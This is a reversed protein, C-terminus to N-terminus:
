DEARSVSVHDYIIGFLDDLLEEDLYLGTREHVRLDFQEVIRRALRVEPTDDPDDAAMEMPEPEPEAAATPAQPVEADRDDGAGASQPAADAEASDALGSAPAEGDDFAATDAKPSTQASAPDGPSRGAADVVPAGHATAGEGRQVIENLVPIDDEDAASSGPGPTTRASAAGDTDAGADNEALWPEASDHGDDPGALADTDPVAPATWDSQGQDDDGCVPAPEPADAPPTSGPLGATRDDDEDPGDQAEHPPAPEPQEFADDAVATAPEEGADADGAQRQRSPAAGADDAAPAEMAESEDDGAGSASDDEHEAILREISSLEDILRRREAALSRIVDSV